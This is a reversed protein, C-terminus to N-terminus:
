PLLFHFVWFEKHIRLLIAQPRGPIGSPAQFASYSSDHDVVQYGVQEKDKFTM